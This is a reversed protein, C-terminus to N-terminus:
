HHCEGWGQGISGQETQERLTVQPFLNTCHVLQERQTCREQEPREGTSKRLIEGPCEQVQGIHRDEEGGRRERECGLGTDEDKETDGDMRVVFGGGESVFVWLVM